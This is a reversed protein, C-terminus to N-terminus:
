LPIPPRLQNASTAVPLMTQRSMAANLAEFGVKWEDGGAPSNNNGNNDGEEDKRGNRSCSRVAFNHPIKAGCVHRIMNELSQPTVVRSM